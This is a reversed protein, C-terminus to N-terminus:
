ENEVGQMRSATPNASTRRQLFHKQLLNGKGSGKCSFENLEGGHIKGDRYKKQENMSVIYLDLQEGFLPIMGVVVACIFFYVTIQSSIHAM